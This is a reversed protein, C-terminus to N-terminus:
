MRRSPEYIKQDVLLAVEEKARTGKVGGSHCLEVREKRWQRKFHKCDHKRKLLRNSSKENEMNWNM